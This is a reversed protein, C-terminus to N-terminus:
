ILKLFLKLILFRVSILIQNDYRIIIEKNNTAQGLYHADIDFTKLENLVTKISDNKVEMIIGCEEAFLVNLANNNFSPINVDLGCDSVFAMELLCVILGGDSIDHGSTCIKNKILKQVIKFCNKLHNANEIDPCDNGLQKNVQALASGGLRFQNTGNLKVFILGCDSIKLEPTVKLRIDPVPAYASIVLTGPSKVIETGNAHKVKAAMSLSDKGGDIGINLQKMFECMSECTRVIM